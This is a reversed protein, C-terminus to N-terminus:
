YGVIFTLVFGDIQVENGDEEQSFAFQHPEKPWVAATVVAEGNANRNSQKTCISIYTSHSLHEM